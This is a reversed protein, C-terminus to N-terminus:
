IDDIRQASRPRTNQAGTIQLGTEAAGLVWLEGRGDVKMEVIATTRDDALSQPLPANRKDDV